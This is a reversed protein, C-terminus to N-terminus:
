SGWLHYERSSLKEQAVSGVHSGGISVAPKNIFALVTLTPLHSFIQIGLREGSLM